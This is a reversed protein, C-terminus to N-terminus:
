NRTVSEIHRASQLFPGLEGQNRASDDLEQVIKARIGEYNGLRAYFIVFLVGPDLDSWERSSGSGHEVIVVVSRANIDTEYVRQLVRCTKEPTPRCCLSRSDCM